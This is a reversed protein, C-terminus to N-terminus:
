GNPRPAKGALVDRFFAQYRPGLVAPDYARGGELARRAAEAYFAEDDVLRVILDLWATVSEAAVPKTTQLTLDDPLGLVFGGEGCVEALGGRDSVIPPVGNVLAEAAVRGAPEEWVSPALLVRAQAYIARPTAVAPATMLNEHRRLDFGGALGAAAVLGSTGRSEIVLLPIDKRRTCLEEALRAYFMLGKEVSPNVFTIFIPDRTEPPAVVEDWELPLPLPTSNVGIVQRYRESLFRSGTLIADVRAFAGPKLYGLNRLGFVVACTAQRARVQRSLDAPSGGFTFLIDPKFTALKEDFLRDFQAAHAPAMTHADGGGESGGASRSTHLLTYTVGRDAFHLEPCGQGVARSRDVAVDIGADRLFAIPEAVAGRETATTALAHVEFPRQSGAGAALMQCITRM